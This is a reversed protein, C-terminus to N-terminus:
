IKFPTMSPTNDVYNDPTITPLMKEAQDLLNMLFSRFFLLVGDNQEALTSFLSLPHYPVDGTGNKDLDYGDYKNWYNGDITNHYYSKNTALDFTNGIFNNRKITVNSSGSVMRMAWGNDKFLNDHADLDAGGDVMLGITNGLFRNGRITSYQLEKILLGYCSTGQNLEFINNAMTVHHTYMVAVGAKNHRFYNATYINHHSFMFHMGYRACGSIHNSFIRSNDVFELYIGDRNHGVVNHHISMTTCKWCHVANGMIPNYTINSSINNHAVESYNCNQLMISFQNRRLINDKIRLNSCGSAYIGCYDKMSSRASNTVTLGQLTVNSAKIEIVHGRQGGDIEPKGEGKISVAKTILLRERYVQGGRVVIVDGPRAASLAKNISGYPMGKGVRLTAAPLPLCTAITLLLTLATGKTKGM